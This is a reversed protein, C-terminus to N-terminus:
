QLGSLPEPDPVGEKTNGGNSPAVHRLYDKEYRGFGGLDKLKKKLEDRLQREFTPRDQQYIWALAETVNGEFLRGPDGSKLADSIIALHEEFLSM